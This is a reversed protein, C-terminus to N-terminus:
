DINCAPGLAAFLLYLIARVDLATCTHVSYIKPSITSLLM